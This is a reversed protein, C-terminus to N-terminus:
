LGTPPTTPKVRITYQLSDPCFYGNTDMQIYDLPDGFVDRVVVTGNSTLVEILVNRQTTSIEVMIEKLAKAINAPAPTTPRSPPSASPGPIDARGVYGTAQSNGTGLTKLRGRKEWGPTGNDNYEYDQLTVTTNTSAGLNNELTYQAVPWLWLRYNVPYANGRGVGFLLLIEQVVDLNPGLFQNFLVNNDVSTVDARTVARWGKKPVPDPITQNDQKVYYLITLDTGLTDSYSVSAAGPTVTIATGTVTYLFLDAGKEISESPWRQITPFLETLNESRIKTRIVGPSLPAPEYRRYIGNGDKDAGAPPTAPAVISERSIGALKNIAARVTPDTPDPAKQILTNLADIKEWSSDVSIPETWDEIADLLPIFDVMVTVISAEMTFSYEYVNSIIAPTLELPWFSANHVLLNYPEYGTIPNLTVTIKDGRAATHSPPIVIIEGYNHPYSLRIAYQQTEGGGPPPPDTEDPGDRPPCGLFLFAACILLSLVVLPERKRTKM